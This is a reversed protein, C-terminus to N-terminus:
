RLGDKKKFNKQKKPSHLAINLSKSNILCNFQM